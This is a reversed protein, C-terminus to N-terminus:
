HKGPLKQDVSRSLSEIQSSFVGYVDRGRLDDIQVAAENIDDRDILAAAYVVRFENIHPTEDVAEKLLRMGLDIEGTKLKLLGMAVLTHSRILGRVENNSLLALYIREVDEDTFFESDKSMLRHISVLSFILNSHPIGSALRREIDIFVSRDTDVRQRMNLDILGVYAAIGRKDLESSRKLYARAKELVFDSAPEEEGIGGLLFIGADYNARSSDHKRDAEYIPYLPDGWASARVATVTGLMLLWVGMAFVLLKRSLFDGSFKILIGYFSIILGISPLYNRHEFVLELPFISSELSHGVYFWVIGFSVLPARQRFLWAFFVMGFHMAVALATLPPDFLGRSLQFDDHYVSFLKAYPFLAQIFYLWVARGETLLREALTFDRGAFNLLHAWWPFLMAALMLCVLPAWRVFRFFRKWGLARAKCQFVFIEIVWAYLPTLVGNEKSYYSLISFIILFALSFFNSGPRADSCSRFYSYFFLGLLSFTAAMSNMRQVVYLVSTLAVPSLLWWTSIAASYYYFKEIRLERLLLAVLFYLVVSNFLHIALNVLKLYFPDLGTWEIQAAFTLLALPRGGPGANGSAVVRAVDSWSSLSNINENIVINPYDDFVFGGYLGPWYVAAGLILAGLLILGSYYKKVM